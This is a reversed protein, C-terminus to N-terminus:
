AALPKVKLRDVGGRNGTSQRLDDFSFPHLRAWLSQPHNGSPGSAAHPVALREQFLEKPQSSIFRGRDANVIHLGDDSDATFFLNSSQDLGNNVTVGLPCQSGEIIGKGAASIGATNKLLHEGGKAVAENGADATAWFCEERAVAVADVEGRGSFGSACLGQQGHQLDDVVAERPHSLAGM